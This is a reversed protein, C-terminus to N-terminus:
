LYTRACWNLNVGSSLSPHISPYIFPHISPCEQVFFTMFDGVIYPPNSLWGCWGAMIIHQTINRSLYCLVRDALLANFHYSFSLILFVASILIYFTFSFHMISSICAAKLARCILIGNVTAWHKSCYMSVTVKSCTQCSCVHQSSSPTLLHM